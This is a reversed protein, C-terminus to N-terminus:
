SLWGAKFGERHRYGSAMLRLFDRAVALGTRSGAAGCAEHAGKDDARVREYLDLAAFKAELDAVRSRPDNRIVHEVQRRGDDVLMVPLDSDRCDAEPPEGLMRDYAAVQVWHPLCERAERDEEDPVLAANVANRVPLPMVAPNLQGPPETDWRQPEFGGAGIIRAADMDATIERRLWPVLEDDV